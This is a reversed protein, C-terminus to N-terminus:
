FLGFFDIHIDNYVYKHAANGVEKDKHSLSERISLTLLSNMTEVDLLDDNSRGIMTPYMWFIHGEEDNEEEKDDRVDGINAEIDGGSFAM